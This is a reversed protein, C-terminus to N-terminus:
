ASSRWARSSRDALRPSGAKPRAMCRDPLKTTSSIRWARWASAPLTCCISIPLSAEIDQLGEISLMGGVIKQGKARAALLAELDGATHIVRFQGRSAAAARDLKTAHWLSRQLLSHWTRVPQLQAFALMTINDSAASNADYNQGKPTKSVSSFVQLAVNGQQLRALDVQGRDSKTLLDRNWLMTDAHMDAIQLKAHLASAEPTIKLAVPVVQNMSHEVIGPALTFFAVAAVVILALAGYLWKKM